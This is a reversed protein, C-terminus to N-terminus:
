KPDSSGGGGLVPKRRAQSHGPSYVQRVCGRRRERGVDGKPDSSGGGGLVPWRRVQSHGPCGGCYHM